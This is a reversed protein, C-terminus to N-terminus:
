PLYNFTAPTKSEIRLFNPYKFNVNNTNGLQTFTVGPAYNPKPVVTITFTDLYSTPNVGSSNFLQLYGTYPYKNDSPVPFRIKYIYLYIYRVPMFSNPNSQDWTSGNYAQFKIHVYNTTRTVTCNASGASNNFRCDSLGNFSPDFEVLPSLYIEM